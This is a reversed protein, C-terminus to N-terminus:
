SLSSKEHLSIFYNYQIKMKTNLVNSESMKIVNLIYKMKHIVDNLNEIDIQKNKSSM